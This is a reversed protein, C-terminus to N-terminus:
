HKGFLVADLRTSLEERFDESEVQRQTIEVLEGQQPAALITRLQEALKAVLVRIMGFTTQGGFIVVLFSSEDIGTLYFSNKQGELFHVKFGNEEGILKAMENTAAYNGAALSSVLTKSSDDLTGAHAVLMGSIDSLLVGACKTKQYLARLSVNIEEFQSRALSIRKSGDASLQAAMSDAFTKICNPPPLEAYIRFGAGGQYDGSPTEGPYM